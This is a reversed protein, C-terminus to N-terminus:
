FWHGKFQLRKECYEKYLFEVSDMLEDHFAMGYSYKMETSVPFNFSGNEYHKNGEWRLWLDDNYYFGKSLGYNIMDQEIAKLKDQTFPPYYNAYRSDFDARVIFYKSASLGGCNVTVTVKTDQSTKKYKFKITYKDTNPRNQVPNKEIKDFTILNGENNTYTIKLDSIDAGAPTVEPCCYAENTDLPCTCGEDTLKFSTVKIKSTSKAKVTVSCSATKGNNSKATITATGAGKAVVTGNSVTAVRNDSSSWSVSKNTANSPNIAANLDANLNNSEGVTMTLSTKNLTISNVNVTAPKSQEAPKSVETPKSQEVPKSSEIPKSEEVPKSYESPQSYYKPESYDPKKSSETKSTHSVEHTVESNQDDDDPEDGTVEPDNEQSEDNTNSVVEQSSENKDINPDVSSLVEKSSENSPETKSEDTSPDTTEDSTPQDSQAESTSAESVITIDELTSQKNETTSSGCGALATCSICLVITLIKKLATM